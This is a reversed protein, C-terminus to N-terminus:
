GGKYLKVFIVVTLICYLLMGANGLRRLLPRQQSFQKSYAYFNKQHISQCYVVIGAVAFAVFSFRWVAPGIGFFNCIVYALSLLNLAMVITTNCAANIESQIDGSGIFVFLRYFKYFLYKYIM